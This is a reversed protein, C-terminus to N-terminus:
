GQRRLSVLSTMILTSNLLQPGPVQEQHRFCRFSTNATANPSWENLPGIHQFSRRQAMRNLTAPSSGFVALVGTTGILSSSYVSDSPEGPGQRRLASPPWNKKGSPRSAHGM